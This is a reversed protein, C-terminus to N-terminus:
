SKLELFLKFKLFRAQARCADRMAPWHEVVSLSRWAIPGAASLRPSLAAGRRPAM